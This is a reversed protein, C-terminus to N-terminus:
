GPLSIIRSPWPWTRTTRLGPTPRICLNKLLAARLDEPITVGKAGTAAEVVQIVQIIYKLKVM